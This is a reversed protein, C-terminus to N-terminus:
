ESEKAKEQRIQEVTQHLQGLEVDQEALVVTIMVASQFIIAFYMIYYPMSSKQKSVDEFQQCKRDLQESKDKLEGTKKGLQESM